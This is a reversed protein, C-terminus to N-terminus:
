PLSARPKCGFADGLTNAKRIDVEVGALLAAELYGKSPRECEVARVLPWM